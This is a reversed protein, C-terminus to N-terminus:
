SLSAVLADSLIRSVGISVLSSHVVNNISRTLNLTKIGDIEDYDPQHAYILATKEPGLREKLYDVSPQVSEVYFEYRKLLFSSNDDIRQRKEARQLMEQKSISM